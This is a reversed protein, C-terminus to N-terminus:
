VLVHQTYTNHSKRAISYAYLKCVTLLKDCIRGVGVHMSLVNRHLINAAILVNSEEPLHDEGEVVPGLGGGQPLKEKVAM